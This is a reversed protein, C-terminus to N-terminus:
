KAKEKGNIEKKFKWSNLKAMGVKRINLNGQGEIMALVKTVTNWSLKTKTTLEKITLGQQNDKLLREIVDEKEM